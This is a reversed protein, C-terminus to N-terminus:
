GHARGKHLQEVAALLQVALEVRDIKKYEGHIPGLLAWQSAGELTNAVMLDAESQRRSKEAIELLREETVGVELKFKVLLERFAWEARVLDILKPTRVMRLWLEREDSKVKGAARDLLAPAEGSATQWRAATSDFRTGPAPAYIGAPEYDSVAAGHIIADYVGTRIEDELERRLDDFTRYARLRWRDPTPTKERSLDGVVEPHSTLMTVRHDRNYAALAISTGTRGTFINTIARVRDIPVQTNGATVLINM